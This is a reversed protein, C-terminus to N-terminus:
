RLYIPNSLIWTRRRGRDTLTVEVRHAGPTQVAVDLADADGPSRALEAGDSLVRIAAPRPLRVRLTRPRDAPAQAGLEVREGAADEAWCAFGRPPALTDRALYCRGERLADYVAARAAAPDASLPGDVLVHTTLLSFSTAYSMLRLPVRSGLRLGFQHADLGAVAVIRRRAAIRDFAALAEPRPHDLAPHADPRALFRLVDPLTRLREVTDTVLSWLELGTAGPPALEDWGAAPVGPFRPHGSSFPHALLGFGGSDAVAAVVERPTLGGHDIPADIGFALYHHGPRQTVEEGVCILVPGHWREYGAYRAALTDHDTLLVVDVGARAAAAAISPVTGTGDSHDSHVHIACALDLVTGISTARRARCPGGQSGVAPATRGPSRPGDARGARATRVPSGHRRERATLAGGSPVAREGRHPRAAVAVASSTGHPAM